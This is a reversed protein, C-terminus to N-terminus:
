DQGSRKDEPVNHDVIAKIYDKILASLYEDMGRGNESNKSNKYTNATAEKLEALAREDDALFHHMAASAFLLEKRRDANARDALLVQTLDLAKQRAAKAMDDHGERSFHYGETRYFDSWFDADKSKDKEPRLLEYAREALTLRQTMPVDTYEKCEKNEVKLKDLLKQLEGTKDSPIDKFDWMFLALHCHKCYYLSTGYTRPWFVYQYKSPWQYIYNGWSAYDYFTNKTKCVPCVVTVPVTTIGFGYDLAFSVFLILALAARVANKKLM